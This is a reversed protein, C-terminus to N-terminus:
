SQSKLRSYIAQRTVGLLKAAISQNGKSRRLAEEILMYEAEKLRPLEDVDSFINQNEEKEGEGGTEVDLHNLGVAKKFIDLSLVRSKHQSVANYVMSRLERVNGPFHYTELLTFLESPYTPKKKGMSGAAEQLFFDVLIPLDDKRERLPPIHIHHVSLRYFLDKRFEGKNMMKKLDRNTAMVIRADTTKVADSGLSFYEKEQILRLLKVQSITVLDGIEDLFLTGGQAKEVLGKRFEVATTFAGKKHGFLTDSFMNDDLGAVNVAVFSKAPRSVNHIAGAFLEKGTGTEGTILIPENSRSIAEIYLFISTMKTNNTIIHSFAGPNELGENFFQIKLHNYQIKLERLEILRNVSATLRNKEVPKLFYDVAGLKMCEVATDVDNLGTVVIIPIGPFDQSIKKLIDEGSLYPMTLDLIILEVQTKSLLPFVERSDQVSIINTIGMTRLAIEFSKLASRDDDVILVPYTPPIRKM